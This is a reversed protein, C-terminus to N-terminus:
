MNLTSEVEEVEQRFNMDISIRKEIQNCAHLVTSHDRKGIRRGIQASPLGTYKQSLYMALQRAQVIDRKRSPSAVDREKVKYHKCVCKVIAEVTLERKELNVLRSVVQAAMTVDIDRNNVISQVMLSNVVGELERVNNSVNEAIYSIVDEAITLGNRRIKSELIRRRLQADPRHLCAAMGWKFRSLLRDEMGDLLAPPRDCTMILLRKNQHLHNFIHFFTQQTRPTTLEQIDDIILVDISQYFNIFSNTTNHRVSDTYQVMFLHASVMLVRRDPNREKIRIGIANVLHTKGVGSPGYVFFPNFTVSNPNDAISLGVSRTLKNSDGELFNEFTYDPNLHPDIRQANEANQQSGPAHSAHTAPSNKSSPSSSSSQLNADPRSGKDADVRYMLHVNAGFAHRIATRMLTLYHEEIIEYVFQSPVSVTLQRENNKEVLSVFKIPEFWTRFTQEQPVNERIFRLCQEWAQRAQCDEM